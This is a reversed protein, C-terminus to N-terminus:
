QLRAKLKGLPLDVSFSILKRNFNNEVILELSFPESISSTSILSVVFHIVKNSIRSKIFALFNKDKVMLPFIFSQSKEVPLFPVVNFLTLPDLFYSPISLKFLNKKNLKQNAKTKSVHFSMPYDYLQFEYGKFEKENRCYGLFQPILINPDFLSVMANDLQYMSSASKLTQIKLRNRLGIKSFESSLSLEAAEINLYSLVYKFERKKINVLISKLAKQSNNIDSAYDPFLNKSQQSFETGQREVFYNILFTDCNSFLQGGQVFSFIEKVEPHAFFGKEILEELTTSRKKNKVSLSKVKQYKIKKEDYFKDKSWWTILLIFLIIFKPNFKM